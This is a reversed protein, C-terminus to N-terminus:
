SNFIFGLCDTLIDISDSTLSYAGPTSYVRDGKKFSGDALFFNIPPNVSSGSEWRLISVDPM